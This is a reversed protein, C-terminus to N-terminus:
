ALSEKYAKNIINELAIGKVPKGLLYGQIFDCKQEQLFTLQKNNEVGEAVVKIELQHALEIIPGIINKKKNYKKINDVFIKDIKLIDIAINQLFSLSAYGTGFDDLAISIGMNRLETLVMMVYEPYSIFISETVEFELFNSNFETEELIDKVMNAFNSDLLQAVSINISLIPSIQFAICYEKFQNLANRLVWEGIENILGIKEAVPIFQAPSVFGLEPSEWRLLAEFGRLTKNHSNYQPQFVLYLEDKKIANKLGDELKITNIFGEELSKSFFGISNNSNNRTNYMALDACKLLEESSKGDQPYLSVGFSVNFYIDKKEFTFGELFINKLEALYELIEQNNLNRPIILAFETGELRGFIDDQDIYLNIREVFMQLVMDGKYHGLSDNIKKFNDLAIIVLAFNKSNDERQNILSNLLEIIKKRNPIATLTDYYVMYKLKEGQELLMDFQSCLRKRYLQLILIIILTVAYSTIGSLVYINESQYLEIVATLLAFLNLGYAILFGKNITEVVIFVSIIVQIHVIVGKLSESDIVSNNFVIEINSRIPYLLALYLLVAIVAKVYHFLNDKAFYEFKYLGFNDWPNRKNLDM